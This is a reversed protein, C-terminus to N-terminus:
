KIFLSQNLIEGIEKHIKKSKSQKKNGTLMVTFCM